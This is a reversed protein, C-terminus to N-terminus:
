PYKPCGTAVYPALIRDTSASYASDVGVSVYVGVTGWQDKLMSSKVKKYTRFDTQNKKNYRVWWGSRDDGYQM